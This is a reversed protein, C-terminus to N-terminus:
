NKMSYNPGSRLGTKQMGTNEKINPLNYNPKERCFRDYYETNPGKNVFSNRAAGGTSQQTAPRSADKTADLLNRYTEIEARLSAHAERSQQYEKTRDMLLNQLDRLKNELDRERAQCDALEKQLQAVQQRLGNNQGELEGVKGTLHRLAEEMKSKERNLREKEKADEAIQRQLAALNKALKDETEKQFKAMEAANADRLKKMMKAVDDGSNNRLKKELNQIIENATRLRDALDKQEQANKQQDFNIKDCLQKNKEEAEKKKQCEEALRKRLEEIDRSSKAYSPKIMDLERCLAELKSKLEANEKDKEALRRQLRDVDDALKRNQSSLEGLKNQLDSAAGKNQSASAALAAKDRNAEDLKRRLKDLEAEYMARLKKMEDELMKMSEHYKSPEMGHGVQKLHRMKDMYHALRDNLGQMDAQERILGNGGGSGGRYSM